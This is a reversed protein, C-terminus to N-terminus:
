TVTHLDPLAGLFYATCPVFSKSTEYVHWWSLGDATCRSQRAFISLCVPNVVKQVHVIVHAKSNVVYLQSSQDIKDLSRRFTNNSGTIYTHM